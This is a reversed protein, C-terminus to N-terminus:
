GDKQGAQWNGASGRHIAPVLEKIFGQLLKDVEPESRGFKDFDRTINSTVTIYAWRQNYGKLLRDRVDIWTRKFHSATVDTYGVFWYYNLNFLSRKNGQEDQASRMNHLRTVPLRTARDLAVSLGRSDVITWGQAPLCREPRHISTNMDQGALVISVFVSDGRGNTYVKRSFATEGGLVQREKESVEAGSGYWVGIMSPLELTVGSPQQNQVHPLLLSAGMGFLLVCWLILLRKTTM